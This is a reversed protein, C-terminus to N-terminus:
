VVGRGVCFYYYCCCFDSYDDEYSLLLFFSCMKWFVLCVFWMILLFMVFRLCRGGLIFYWVIFLVFYYFMGVGYFCVKWGWGFNWCDNRILWGICFFCLVDVFVFLCCGGFFLVCFVVIVYVWSVFIRMFFVVELVWRLRM